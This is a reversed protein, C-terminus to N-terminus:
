PADEMEDVVLRVVVGPVKPDELTVADVGLRITKTKKATITYTVSGGEVTVDTAGLEALGADILELNREGRLNSRVRYRKGSVIDFTGGRFVVFALGGLLGLFLLGKM